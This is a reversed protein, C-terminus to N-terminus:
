VAVRLAQQPLTAVRLAVRGVRSYGSPQVHFITALAIDLARIFEREHMHLVPAVRGLPSLM